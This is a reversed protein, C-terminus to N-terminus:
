SQHGADAYENHPSQALLWDALGQLDHSAQSHAAYEAVRMNSAMAEPIAEDQHIAYRVMRSGLRDRLITVADHSLLQTSNVKNLVHFLGPANQQENTFRQNYHSQIVAIDEFCSPQTTIVNLILDASVLACDFCLSPARQTDILVICDSPPDLKLLYHDISASAVALLKEHTLRSDTEQGFPLYNVQDTNRRIAGHWAHGEPLNIIGTPNRETVGLYLGLRNSPELELVLVPLDKQTLLTAINATLSTKGTGGSASVIAVVFM